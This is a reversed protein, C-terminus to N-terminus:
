STAEPVSEGTSTRPNPPESAQKRVAKKRTSKKKATKKAAKKTPSATKGTKTSAKKKAAKKKAAKKKVPKATPEDGPPETKGTSTDQPTGTSGPRDSPRGDPTVAGVDPSSPEGPADPAAQAPPTAAGGEGTAPKHPPDDGPSAESKEPAPPPEAPDTEARERKRSRGGRRRGRRRRSPGGDADQPDPAKQKSEEKKSPQEPPTEFREPHAEFDEIAAAIKDEMEEDTYPIVREVRDKPKTPIAEQDPPFYGKPPLSVQEYPDPPLPSTPLAASAEGSLRPHLCLEDPVNAHNEDLLYEVTRAVDDPDIRAQQRLAEDANTSPTDNQRLILNTMRLGSDRAQDFLTANMGRLGGEILANLASPAHGSKNTPIINILRGRYRLLNPLALRTLVVPGLLGIKLVAELNGVPLREFAAGPTVDLAHILINLAGEAELIESFTTHLAELDCLDVAHAQFQPDAYRVRSFNNGIGHVRCGSRNLAEIIRLGLPTEAGTVLAIDM